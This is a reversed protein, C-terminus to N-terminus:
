FSKIRNNKSCCSVKDMNTVAYKFIGPFFCYNSFRTNVISVYGVKNVVIHVDDHKEYFTGEKVRRSKKNFRTGACLSTNSSLLFLTSFIKGISWRKASFSKM